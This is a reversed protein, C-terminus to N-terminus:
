RIELMAVRFDASARSNRGAQTWSGWFLGLNELFQGHGAYRELRPLGDVLLVAVGRAPDFDLQAIPWLGDGSLPYEPGAEPVVGTNLKFYRRGSEDRRFNLDFRRAGLDVDVWAGGEQANGVATIRWGRELALKKEFIMLPRFYLDQATSEVRWAAEHNPAPQGPLQGYKQFGLKNPDVAGYHAIVHTPDITLCFQLCNTWGDRDTDEGGDGTGDNDSDASMPDLSLVREFLDSLGDHDADSELSSQPMWKTLGATLVAWDNRRSVTLPRDLTLIQRRMELARVINSVAESFHGRNQQLSALAGLITMRYPHVPGLEQELKFLALEYNTTAEDYRNLRHLAWGLDALALSRLPADNGITRELILAVQRYIPEAETWAGQTGLIGALNDLSQLTQQEKAAQAQETVL